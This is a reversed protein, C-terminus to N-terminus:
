FTLHVSMMMAAVIWLQVVLTAVAAVHVESLKM